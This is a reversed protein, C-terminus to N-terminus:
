EQKKTSAAILVRDRLAPPLVSLPSHRYAGNTSAIVQVPDGGAVLIMRVSPDKGLVSVARDLEEPTDASAVAADVARAVTTTNRVALASFKPGLTALELFIAFGALALGMLWIPAIIKTTISM